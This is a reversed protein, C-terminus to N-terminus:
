YDAPPARLQATRVAEAMMPQTAVIPYAIHIFDTETPVESAADATHDYTCLEDILLIQQSNHSHPHNSFPHSHTISGQNLIHSHYFFHTGVFYSLYLTTLLLALIRKSNSIMPLRENYYQHM